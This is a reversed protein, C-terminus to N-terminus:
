QDRSQNHKPFYFDLSIDPDNACVELAFDNLTKMSKKVYHDRPHPDIFTEINSSSIEQTKPHALKNRRQFTELVSQALLDSPPEGFVTLFIKELKKAIPLREIEAKYYTEGFRRVGYFNLFGEMALCAYLHTSTAARYSAEHLDSTLHFILSECTHGKKQHRKESKTLRKTLTAYDSYYHWANQHHSMYESNWAGSETMSYIQPKEM